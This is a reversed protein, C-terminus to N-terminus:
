KPIDQDHYHFKGVIDFVSKHPLGLSQLGKGGSPLVLGLCDTGFEQKKNLQGQSSSQQYQKNKISRPNDQNIMSTLKGEMGLWILCYVLFFWSSVLLVLLFIM